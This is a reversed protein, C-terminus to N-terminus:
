DFDISVNDAAATVAAGGGGLAVATVAVGDLTLWTGALDGLFCGAGGGGGGGGDFVIEFVM